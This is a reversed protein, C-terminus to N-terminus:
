TVSDDPSSADLWESRPSSSTEVMRAGAGRSLRSVMTVDVDDTCEAVVSDPEYRNAKRVPDKTHEVKKPM